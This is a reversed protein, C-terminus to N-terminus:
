EKITQSTQLETKKDQCEKLQYKIEKKQRDASVLRWTNFGMYLLGFGMIILYMGSDHIKMATTIVIAVSIALPIWGTTEKSEAIILIKEKEKIFRELEEIDTIQDIEAKIKEINQPNDAM